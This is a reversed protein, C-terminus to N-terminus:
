VVTRRVLPLDLSFGIRRRRSHRRQPHLNPVTSITTSFSLCFALAPLYDRGEKSTEYTAGGERWFVSIEEVEGELELRMFAYCGYTHEVLKKM